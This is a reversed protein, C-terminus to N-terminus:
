AVDLELAGTRFLTVHGIYKYNVPGVPEPTIGQQLGPLALGEAGM